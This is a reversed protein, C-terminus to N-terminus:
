EEFSSPLGRMTAVAQSQLEAPLGLFYYVYRDDALTGCMLPHKRAAQRLLAAYRQLYANDHRARWILRPAERTLDEVKLILEELLMSGIGRGFHEPAVVVKDLYRFQEYPVMVICARYDEEVLASWNKGLRECYGARLQRHFGSEILACLRGCDVAKAELMHFSYGQSLMTGSGTATFLEPLLQPPTVLQIARAPGLSALFPEVWEMIGRAAENWDPRRKNLFVRSPVQGSNDTLPLPLLLLYKYYDKEEAAQRLGALLDVTAAQPSLLVRATSSPRPPKPLSAEIAARDQANYFADPAFLTPSLGIRLLYRLGDLLSEKEAPWVGAGLIFLAFRDPEATLFRQLYEIADRSYATREVFDKFVRHM